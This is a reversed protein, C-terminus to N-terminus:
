QSAAATPDCSVKPNMDAFTGTPNGKWAWVHLEYFEGLGYRNPSSNFNFGTWRRLGRRPSTNSRGWRASGRGSPGARIRHLRVPRRASVATKKTNGGCLPRL